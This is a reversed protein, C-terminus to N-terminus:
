YAGKKPVRGQHDSCKGHALRNKQTCTEAFSWVNIADGASARSDLYEMFDDFDDFVIRDPASAGRYFWHEVVIPGEDELVKRIAQLTEPATIKVGDTVWEDAECFFRTKM